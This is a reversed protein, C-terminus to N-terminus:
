GGVGATGAFRSPARLWASSETGRREPRAQWAGRRLQEELEWRLLALRAHLTSAVVGSIPRADPQALAQAAHRVCLGYGSEFARRGGPEELLAALLAIARAGAERMRRCLPCERGRSLADQIIEASGRGVWLRRVVQCFASSPQLAAFARDAYVLREEAERVAVQALRVALAPGGAVRAQWVHQPCLPLVDALDGDAEAQRALWQLWQAVTDTIEACVACSPLHRLRRRMRRIPDPDDAFIPDTGGAVPRDPRGPPGLIIRLARDGTIDSHGRCPAPLDARLTAVIRRHSALVGGLRGPDLYGALRILHPMCVVAPNGYCDSGRAGVLLALFFCERREVDRAQSCAPCAGPDAILSAPRKGAATRGALRPLYQHILGLYILAVTASLGIHEVRGAHYPCFGGSRAVARMAEPELYGEYLFHDLWHEDAGAARTCIPCADVTLAAELDGLGEAPDRRRNGLGPRLHALARTLAGTM